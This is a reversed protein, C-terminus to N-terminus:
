NSVKLWFRYYDINGTFSSEEKSFEDFMDYIFPEVEERYIEEFKEIAEEKTDFSGYLTQEGDTDYSTVKYKKEM